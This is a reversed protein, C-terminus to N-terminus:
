NGKVEKARRLLREALLHRPDLALARSAESEAEDFDGREFALLASLFHPQPADPIDIRQAFAEAMEAAREHHGLEAEFHIPFYSFDINQARSAQISEVADLAAQPGELAHVWEVYEIIVSWENPYRELFAGYDEVARHMMATREEASGSEGRERMAFLELTAQYTNLLLQGADDVEDRRAEVAEYLAQRESSDTTIRALVSKAILFDPDAAAAERYLREAETWRGHLLIERWGRRYLNLAEKSAGGFSYLGSSAGHAGPTSASEM